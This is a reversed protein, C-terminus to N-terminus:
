ALPADAGNDGSERDKEQDGESEKKDSYDDQEPTEVIRNGDDSGGEDTGEEGQEHDDCDHGEQM